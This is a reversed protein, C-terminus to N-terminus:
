MMGFADRLENNLNLHRKDTINSYLWGNSKYFMDTITASPFKSRGEDPSSHSPSSNEMEISFIVQIKM